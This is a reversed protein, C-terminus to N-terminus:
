LRQLESDQIEGLPLRLAYSAEGYSYLDPFRKPATSGWGVDLNM